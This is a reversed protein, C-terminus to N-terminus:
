KAEAEVIWMPSGVWLSGDTRKSHYSMSIDAHEGTGDPKADAGYSTLTIIGDQAVRYLLPRNWGDTTRNAYGERKPLADLSPPTARNTEAYINIRVFTETMPTVTMDHPTIKDTCGFLSAVGLFILFNRKTM